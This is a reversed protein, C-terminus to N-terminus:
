KKKRKKHTTSFLVKIVEWSKLLSHEIYNSCALVFGCVSQIETDLPEASPLIAETKKSIGGFIQWNDAEQEKWQRWKHNPKMEVSSGLFTHGFTNHKSRQRKDHTLWPVVFSGLQANWRMVTDHSPVMMPITNTTIDIGFMTTFGMTNTHTQTHTHSVIIFKPLNHLARAIAESQISIITASQTYPMQCQLRLSFNPQMPFCQTPSTRISFRSRVCQSPDRKPVINHPHTNSTGSGLHVFDVRLPSTRKTPHVNAFRVWDVCFKEICETNHQREGSVRFISLEAATGCVLKERGAISAIIHFCKETSLQSVCCRACLWLTQLVCHQM